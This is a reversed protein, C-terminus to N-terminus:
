SLHLGKPHFYSVRNNVNEPVSRFTIVRRCSGTSRVSPTIHRM